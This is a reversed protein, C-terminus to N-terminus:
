RSVAVTVRIAESNPPEFVIYWVEKTRGRAAPANEDDFPPTDIGIRWRGEFFAPPIEEFDITRGAFRIVVNIKESALTPAQFQDDAIKNKALLKGVFKSIQIYVNAIAIWV